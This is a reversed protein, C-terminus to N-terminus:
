RRHDACDGAVLSPDSSCECNDDYSIGLHRDAFADLNRALGAHSYRYAVRVSARAVRASAALRDPVSMGGARIAAIKDQFGRKIEESTLTTETTTMEPPGKRKAQKLVGYVM